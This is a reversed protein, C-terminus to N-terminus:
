YNAPLIREFLFYFTFLAVAFPIAGILWTTWRPHRHFLLWWLGGILATVLGALITPTNSSSDGSLATKVVVEPADVPDVSPPLPQAGPPLVLDAKVVLRQAASYKPHCTTLTLTAARAPDPDLVDLASPSVVFKEYVSYEFSGQLTTVRIRDGPELGDLEGFPAGYTTRHGAISANGSQGPLPTAPYHGPGARLDSEDVGQVVYADIGVKPVVLHAIADGDPVSPPPPPVTTTTTTTAVEPPVPATTVTTSPLSSTRLADEFQSQLRNQARATYIGTGWLQYAVFLLILIGVTILAKGIGRIVQRM